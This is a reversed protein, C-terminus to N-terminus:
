IGTRRLEDALVDAVARSLPERLMSFHTGPLTHARVGGAAVGEWAARVSPDSASGEAAQLLVVEGDYTGRVYRRLALANARFVAFLSAVREAGVDPPFLGAALAARRVHDLREAHGMARADAGSVGVAGSDLGLHLAFDVYPRLDDGPEADPPALVSDLLALLAVQEGAARLRRAMELAVVGGMSWGGLLYPGRPQVGRVRALYDEAMAAIGDRPAAEGDLGRAQLGYVPRDAGVRRGLGEYPLASGGAAHVLFLPTGTGGAHLLVLPSAPAADPEARLLRALREVTPAAFLAALPLRRGTAAEVRALLRIALMSHGGLAFFDDTAGVRETGLVEAWIGALTAEEPTRPAVYAAAGAPSEPAPLARRDTKGSGTLPLEALGVIASPVMHEPLHARLHARLEAADAEGVVYAVLRRGGHADDDRVVAVADRVAPHTRLVAEIEGPEIRFGRLKVQQDARGLYELEGTALWRVRDGTRYMRGGSRAAGFPDPLFREATPGPRGAYGRATGDGALHLEGPVGAPVPELRADLVYARTNAVPRGVTVRAADPAVRAYTSYTTDETPGYLNGIKEITGTALLARALDAPLPEGGLNLTRVSAPIAGARLLEAAATPVMSAYVIGQGAAEPLSLANEVLVLRGGWCLTGFVEAVSVDFSVSTSWLVGSRERESVIGRMWHMLVATSAHRIMVGKPRGTSGSTFIVHSLNEPGVGTRPADAPQRAMEAAVADLALVEAGAVRDALEGTTLVLAVGADEVMRGLRERPYAPDLPVYAGGARLVGLLAVLLGPARGLMVGVRSEPGVGRHRLLHALRNAASDLEAYRVERAGSVLAVADPTRAAQAAVLDHVLGGAPYGAGTDNWGALLQEREEPGLMAADAAPRGADAVVAAVLRAFHGAMREMTARDWLGARYALSGAFGREDEGLELTLDYKAMEAGGAALPEVEVPGMRLEGRENNQLAFMAQFLPPHALTREPALEEVLREFPIEQHQYAGLTAERVRGLLARFSPEGSLDTRLVLTNVFFGILGETELRTRGAIPTGVSVDEVGAYRALLLQCAALLAMFATAGERRALARLERSVEAPLHVGVSGGRADQVQPRPRDTPLELLPPADALKERWFALRAELAEGTLWARQWAAFDAYQVPLAPLGAARGDSLADYLASLERVLVGMSWGDAVVHHMVLLLVWGDTELRVALARLLPGAALDFPRAAEAAVLRLARAERAEMPLGRLDAVPLAFPAAARVVQVPEGDVVAFVTRLTEHRRVIEAVARELLAPDFRGRLRLAFPMNYLAGGPELRDIFWLRQQAFSTPLPSGDRAVPALPPAQPGADEGRLADIRAALAGVTPAEFLARLPLEVGFAARVRSVVRTALLSHGGLEFFDEDVGVREAGLVDGWIEALVGEAPTRPSVHEAAAPGAPAPLARRDVKGTPTLPLAELLVFAGPVMHEPLRGQLRARLEGATPRAGEAPVVYAVLRKEGVSDERAAVAAERVGPLERLAAEVEGPEVRFGRVKVQQDIRGLFELEGDARRRVRDGTRYLRAGPEGGFADPVFREATLGPRGLYGRAVGAGGIWLEGPVGAPLLSGAADCVYLGVGPLARGVVRWGPSGTEPRSAAALISAETPGYLVRIGAAPFAERMEALLDPPVADGGVFVRRMRPLTGPGARVRAALERMLAPVAHVADAEALEGALREVDLVAERPPLRVEGGSLLPGFVEFGWIDFAFSALAPMVEGAAPAFGARTGLLTNALGAHEVVVGKPLGTSGSTYVVYAANRLDAGSRPAGDPEGAIAERDADLLVRGGGFDPVSALLRSESVLLAAGSDALTYALRAAPYAPDLPVYAGGAKLVGLVAVVMEVGRELCIGVRVEPGAGRGRLHHALRNSRRELEAYRLTGGPGAVAVLGPTRAAQASFLEHVCAPPDSAPEARAGALLQAREADGLLSAESLRMGPDAALADLVAALHGAMRAVTAAEFLASRYVLAGGLEEGADALVLDLDFKAVHGGGGFSAVALDGLEPRGGDGGDQDLTFVTQFVPAHALSRAVGLEDVLREFPLAQHDYAGLTARRVRALLERWTPDGSLDARLPLMNVFFGILGETERRDRGAVPSGVVVDDQGAWRGLLAQWGALLTMFLTAGERRAVERLRPPLGPAARFGISAAAPSSGPARPRDTPIELLPPAGALREKWWGIQEELAGGSLWARQWVAYDAYQVPLEPLRPAEGRALAAYLASLERVLVGRSWGDSVVHHLTLCLVHDDDALRLLAARLLPGRALDFPRLAEAAALRLAEAEREAAPLRRLDPEALAVPAPDHVAQVPAGGREVFSTRLIEHRLVLADLAARLAGADLAGRLRLAYPMNYAASGPDLRDVLWLRQQAFSAPLPGERPVPVIPPAAPAGASRLAEIRRALGAVTPAEFLARLPVEVGFAQRVRSMVRTALLSHGGLEFFSAEVGVRELGLVEAWIGALLEEAPTRPAMPEAEGPDAPAPLARRDIKGNATVPLEDLVVYAAPVMYEPLAESLHARLEAAAPGAGAEATVYAALRQRGPADERLLVVAEKVTPHGRLVAEIEGLEVRFGRVKVQHDVRGLFDIEGDARRRGVDGTRYLRAGPVGRHPDPVFREATLDPRGLYGRAVGVGGIYLEGAVGVPVPELRADLVYLQTNAVARGIPPDGGEWSYASSTMRISAETAGYGNFFRRGAGWRKVQEAPLTEGGTVIVRLDPLPEVPTAALASPMTKLHTIREERLTRLLEEGPLMAERRALVLEAGGCLAVFVDAVSADFHLPAYALSRVGPGAGYVRGLELFTNGVGRHEVLVGKPRGTSGSTYIVYALNDPDVGSEPAEPSERAIRGAEADVALLPVGCGELREALAAQTLLLVPAADGLVYARREAPLDPDLPLYAGGALLVGLVAVVMEPAPEMCIGVRAEPGVGERRLRNALQCARAYLEAYTLSCGQFRLAPAGPARVVRAHVLEHICIEGTYGTDAGNWAHLLRAREPGRLLSVESLRREPAAAMAELVAELHGAMRAATDADFLAARFTLVGALAEAGDVVTLNLDFKALGDDSAFPEPRAEGLSLREDGDGARELAFIVQFVPTHALSREVGLEDVLREFPLAQHDFAGLAVARTRALLETWAPDGSLDGRLALMNVFFGILGETERHSRGAVPSGVVVDEQGAYRGLLGQWAALVTMFPTTGARRSLERLGLSTAPSLVFRHTGARGDPAASRPRDVPLRLLPPAGALAKKWYGIQESLVGGSLWSRQWVAYDAYQVPLAPLHAEEGRAAAAYLASVDRVLVQMSWGDSVVHHLTFCLVHDGDDLRLLTCRLLPGRALDFPLRAEAAALREALPERAGAPVGRLDVVPLPIPAAPRVVQVPAGDTEAFVTRLAEHRRALADMAARLAAPDLPGRLRLAYAMNYAPSDPDLRNVLWLRQQAFSVPLPGERPVRELPPAAAAGGARLAEIRAALEAVTPAEFLARLPLEVGFAQRVRSVVQAALLSHGGLEFFNEGTGVRETKLVEAWIGALLEEAVTRPPVYAHATGGGPEPAPLARRDLKGGPTLPLRELVVFAAPVLARPLREQLHARLEAGTPEVDGRRVLYAVLRPEGPVGTPAGERVAVAAEGVGPHELLAAEVEGPEVRIGRVKVQADMRGLFELEGTGLWRARDGTRYMRAGAAGSYPDPVFREATRDPRGLYGRALATGGVCLEGPVGVPEPEGRGDLVYTRRGGVARGIPVSGTWAGADTADFVTATVVAETPGYANLLRAAGTEGEAWARVTAPALADGGVIVLRLARKLAAAAAPERVLQGWYAPPVNAVTVGLAEVREAFEAPTWVAPERPAVSAGALLPALVQEYFPDFGQAAFVLVRDAPSLGYTRAIERFHAAAAGHPVVVGKPRGTSGSTYVLYAASSPAVPPLIEDEGDACEGDPEVVRLEASGSPLRGRLHPQTVVLEVGADELLSAVRAPPHDPDLLLCCGGAELTGLLAVVVDTSHEMFIGVVREPGAGERRLLRALRGARRRLAAYTLAEGRAAVAVADPTLAAQEAFREHLVAPPEDAAAPNWADLVQAREPGALLSVEAPRRGPDAAMSRLLVELQGAMRAITAAEFLAERYVLAGGLEEGDDGMALDLDFKAVVAGEGFSELEVDGLRPRGDGAGARDLGFVVQFLPAHALSREVSLEEVLREFPLEQHEYAGLAAARVRGLLASWTPAGSLDARLPLMNVFFGILGETERRTRGAVPTGVVVDDEGAYRGLLAQWAALATMFLTAGERRSLARLERSLAGPLVFAHTGARPSGRASRPQDTPIGLLAPAGALTERWYHVQEALVEGSLRDRQWVAYDAYQVPLEPLRPEEGRGHAAYLAAVERVLVDMSWGDGVIHHLTFCLVHDADDLRLLAARLLPGRALDFPRLAEGAAQRRAESEREAAPLSGLDRLEVRVPAPDRIVQVPGGDTEAFVTRLTEHRRALGDLSRRLAGVDLAGRLRLAFAMNYAASGPELRDVLWLRQQAFSLPLAGDRAVRGIPPAAGAAGTGLVSEIREALEAVTPAEFLDRLPVEVGFAQRVRAVARMALLSHGGLDFFGDRVGAREIELVEEWIGCLIEEAATRPAAYAEAAASWQPAPLARRDIKGNSTLPVADLVVFSGPVMYAPLARAAHERLDALSPPAGGDAVVYGVLRRDGPVDERALVVAERVAAHEALVAEVEAPEIRFGRIKVQQDTRGLFEVTGDALRRARDGTRYLRAGPEGGLADPVYREATLGPRGRYGRAVAAGGIYLEGPVGVPAPEGAADLVYAAANALPTGVPLNAWRAGADGAELRLTTTTVTTETLGFVHLLPVGMGAWRALREPLVREGGVLVLRLCGPPRAGAEAMQRVWEHWFATPLEVLTAREAELVRNLETPSGLLDGGAFVVCAGGLWAPFLEEIFVDFAPSAFQLVRDGAGLGLEARMAEAYCVLSRHGVMAAKPRGTSGSTYCLYALADSGTEAVPGAPAAIDGMEDVCLIAAAGPPLRGALSARTLVLPAGSDALLYALREPPHGADMPLFAGGAQLTALVAVALEPSRDLFLAVPQEPAVGRARLRAALAAARRHLEAYSLTHGGGAVAPADPWAAARRAVLDHVLEDGPVPRREGRADQLLRGREAPRLLSIDALRRRPHAAMSELLTELQGAMREATDADVRARDYRLEARLRADVAASLVLPHDFHEIAQGSRVRLGGIGEGLREDIPYNEFAVLSDFLAEGLPVDSWRQVRALPAYDFERARAQEAQLAGLWEGVTAAGDLRVRVPLTNIFLGVMEEVGALEPPRGSVTAGFVIDDEGSWRGLLLAWAGQVVTGPTVGWRRAQEQLARTPQEGMEVWAAGSGREAGNAAAPRVPLPTPAAFGALAERWFSEARALDQRELWAVYERYPRAEGGRAQAAYLGLVDQFLVGLSWGDLVLHHHTWVLEHERDATRFLALRMLPARALDFGRRRDEDLYRELRAAREADGLERWDHRRIELEVERGVVQLPRESGEWVFGTRLVAHRAIGGEWARRLADVDLEGELVYRFQGVYAGSEPALLTQFLMGEQMPTLPYVDEVGRDRGLLADLKAQALGALPFDSPTWGGAEPSTCHAILARLEAAYGAALREMTARGHVAASFGISMELRGGAVAGVIELRHGRPTREDRSAGASEPAFGFFTDASVASDVQGLYNFAVEAAPAAALEAGAETGGPWRLLGHGVGKGPVRRLQEKVARLAEGPGGSEPLELVVPYVVTFWGVTRSLDAGAVLEEERGHGELDVRARPSGTWRALTRALATLLVDDIRTRYARPVERVLAETEVEDLRVSVRDERAAADEGAPDDLPLPAVDLRAQALWYDAEDAPAGSRAREALHGAWRKWATTKAPLRVAEGRALQTCATALDELLIRWSVGDAALHHAVLLLRQGGDGLDFLVARLLPGRALDLTRQVRDAAAELAAGDAVRLVEVPSREGIGAHTQTWTGDIDRRFRLRLADHHAELAAVARDLLVPDLPARPTLLLAQNFHHPAPGAQAFFQRQVPTLPAEGSVPGQDEGAIGADVWEAVEALRAATPREFLQRPTLKLGRQRARAVVQISLISDGGREFFDDHVGVREVRLVEAWVAALVEEAPTRPAVYADAGGSWEPAPLARRDVKGNANLPLRELVVIAAPVMYEPLREQLAGRLEAAAIEAGEEAVVYGVLRKQGPVDERLQVAAERVGAQEALVSEIEGPEIRFGRLKVQTDMRGLFELEGEATWRARDGTRYLRGGPEGSFPDPVFREATPAAGGLYDRAVSAGGICLEGPVGVPALGGAGDLVHLAANGLPRGVWQRRAASARAAHTACVVAGETPGYLVHVAAAPFVERMADLLEPPVADGGVFARRLGPLAGRTSAVQEVVQRMLAPVAHLATCGALGEVLRATELVEERSVVRVAGGGLLPLVSEFLWIDFAFSALSPVVDGPGFGFAEQAALLTHLLARHSVRVGKPRGTSGSTYIVYALNDADAPPGGGPESLSAVRGWNQPLAERGEAGPSDDPALLEGSLGVVTAAHRPLATAEEARAVLVPVAADGLMYAIRDGPHDPDLPVYAGGAKWVGLVAVLLGPTRPLCVGVPTEPGVGLARLADALRTSRADLEAYTMSEGAGSVAPADPTRAAQEALLRPVLKEDPYTRPANWEELLRREEAASLLRLGSIRRDPDAVAAELLLRFHEAMREITSADFLDARYDIRGEIREGEEFLAVDLDFKAAADAGGLPEMELDGLALTGREANQLAFMVQFLPNHALSRGPALEDVLAEFPLDQHAFAGLTTERVRALLARFSPDGGLDARLVLTNVFFGILGEVEARTRNAIPTGVVVDETGAYRGLLMQWGALLAMFLTASGRQGLERLGRTTDGDLDFRIGAAATAAGPVGSRPRDTPLELLPPAGDLAERWFRLQAELVDGTLWERQWAAFDAYQVPLDPLPSPAGRSFAAYLASVERVLVGISWADGVVHHLTFCLAWEDDALRALLMRLLPGRELDFPRAGEAAVRRLAEARRPEEPLASLDLVPLRAPGAPLVVQVAEGGEAAVVTRLAEHRRVLEALTRRLAAVDPAGRLGLAFPMNYAPSAPDLQHLFWLRQQAFSLPAPGNGARRPIRGSVSRASALAAEVRGALGAVTPAEFLARLPLEAGLEGRVASVVRTALLSHGGLVFFSDHIGVGERGLVEAFVRALVAEVPTRPPTHEAADPEGPAPLARRDLKGSPTLPLAELAVLAGPVMAEPLRSRLWARLEAADVPEGAAPLHYGVLLRQGPRDERLAVAADAVGPHARLAAEIEGTEIRIGRLKVQGDVRGLYELEGSPLWAARDGTRYMRAGSGGFPDPVFREATLEPRGAYGRALGDGALYLEGPMGVPAPQLSADLVYARTNALPRGITVREADRSVVAGTSYVTDETPGYLNRVAAVTGLAYLGRALEAPLAEGALNFAAVSPPVAGTRLLEAAATPVMVALRVGEGAVSPLDLANEVLVLRGGWALTGFLEAVSVDFNVSTSFLTASREEDPVNERLWHLLVVVSSHRIMVGKPRGTSGSTFVVHSLNGPLVGTAPAADSEAAIAARAADLALARAGDPLAGALAGSTLVLSVGADELMWGLRERPYAPDLPVYAGGAKLVGLLAVVLEPTRELCVGVRGEPGVGLRRLHNALRSARAELEGYSVREGRFVVAPASPTRAAQAAVLEHVCAPPYAAATANWEELVQAREGARLLPLDALRGAPDAAMAELLTEMQEVLREADEAEVRGLDYHLEVKLRSVADAVLTLPYNTQELIFSSRVRVGEVDGAQAGLAQDMPLNEFVVLSGFLAEGPPVDSWRQVDVLPAYDYDRAELQERQLAALWEWTPAAAVPRARVPLTNIFLGVTEEIGALEVPRGSVTAGFVVDDEGAHRSLLLAWAGQVVASLTVGRRRAQEALAATREPPLLRAAAGFGEEPSRPARPAPLPTPADFGA